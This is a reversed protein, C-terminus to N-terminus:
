NERNLVKRALVIEEMVLAPAKGRVTSDRGMTFAALAEHELKDLAHHKESITMGENNLVDEASLCPRDSMGSSPKQAAKNLLYPSVYSM